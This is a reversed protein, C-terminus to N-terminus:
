PNPMFESVTYGIEDDATETVFVRIGDGTGDVYLRAAYRDIFISEPFGYESDYEVKLVDYENQQADTIKSFVDELTLQYWSEELPEGTESNTVSQIDDDQVTVVAGNLGPCFCSIRLQFQYNTINQSAWIEQQRELTSQWTPESPLAAFETVTYRIQDTEITDVYDIYISAPHAYLSHVEVDVADAEREEADRAFEFLEDITMKLWSEYRAAGTTPDTVSIIDSNRVTVLAASNVGLLCDCQIELLFQYNTINQSAWIRQYDELTTTATGTPPTGSSEIVIPVFITNESRLSVQVGDHASAAPTAPTAFLNLCVSMLFTTIFLSIIASKTIAM